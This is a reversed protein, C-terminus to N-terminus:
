LSKLYEILDLKQESSLATGYDHGSNSNGTKSPDLQPYAPDSVYGVRVPDFQRSGVHFPQRDDPATLLEALTAVSGNHLYPATAWVGNLPRAKYGMTVSANQPPVAEAGEGGVSSLSLGEVGQLERQVSDKEFLGISRAGLASRLIDQLDSPLASSGQTMEDITGGEGVELSELRGVLTQDKFRVFATSEYGPNLSDLGDSQLARGLQIPDIVPRLIVREVVHKLILAVPAEAGFHDLELLTKRRGELRGTKATRQVFNDIMTSDTDVAALVATVTRNEDDRDIGQHCERCHSRFLAEGRTRRDQDIAGLAEPWVPSWLETLTAELRLLHEKNITSEYRRPLLLEDSEIEAHGFVGLVEGSNRGLAGVEKAGFLLLGLESSRNEAAGNWQVRDHLPADWLCPYSVPANAPRRNEPIGLFTASVENFIAGFADVRGHGFPPADAEPLNRDNYAARSAAVTRLGSRLGAREQLTADTGLVASAFRDFKEDSDATQHMSDVLRRQLKEFDALAPGGDVIWAREEYQIMATHCAACTMGVAFTGDEYTADRAFGIPLGDPNEESPSRPIYGLERIHDADLFKADSNPQELHLFWDYPLLRSGQAAGYFWEAESDSWNQDLTQVESTGLPPVIHRPSEAATLVTCECHFVALLLVIHGLESAKPGFRPSVFHTM